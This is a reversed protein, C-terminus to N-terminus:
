PLWDDNTYSFIIWELWLSSPLCRTEKDYGGRPKITESPIGNLMISYHSSEICAMVVRIFNLPFNLAIMMDHQFSWDM